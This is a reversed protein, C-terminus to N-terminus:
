PRTAVGCSTTATRNPPLLLDKVRFKDGIQGSIQETKWPLTPLASAYLSNLMRRREHTIQPRPRDRESIRAFKSPEFIVKTVKKVCFHAFTNKLTHTSIQWNDFLKVGNHSYFVSFFKGTQRFQTVKASANTFVDDNSSEQFPRQYSLLHIAIPNRLM